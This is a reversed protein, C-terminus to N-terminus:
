PRDGWILRTWESTIKEVGFDEARKQAFFRARKRDKESNKLLQIITEAWEIEELTNPEGSNLLRGDFVPMIYGYDLPEPSECQRSFDETPSLIERPGFRCDSSIIQTGCALAEILVNPLGEHLSPFAFLDANSIYNYPNDKEGLFHVNKRLGSEYVLKRQFEEVEGSGGIILLRVDPFERKVTRLSRILHWQGKALRQRGVTVITKGLFLESPVPIKAKQGVAFIDVANYIVKIKDENIKLSKSLESRIGLSNVVINDAFRYVLMSLLRQFIKLGSKWSQAPNMRESIIAKNGWIFKSFVNLLNPRTNFSVTISGEIKKHWKGLRFVLYPLCLLKIISSNELGFKSLIRVNKLDAKGGKDNEILFLYEASLRENLLFAQKEAGGKRLSNCLINVKM